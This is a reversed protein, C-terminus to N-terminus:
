QYKTCKWQINKQFDNYNQKDDNNRATNYVKEIIDKKQKKQDDTGKCPNVDDVDPESQGHPDWIKAFPNRQTGIQELIDKKFSSWIHQDSTGSSSSSPISLNLNTDYIMTMKQMGQQTGQPTGQQMGQQTGQPTGQQTGEYNTKSSLLERLYTPTDNIKLDNEVSTADTKNSASSYIRYYIMLSSLPTDSNARLHKLLIHVNKAECANDYLKQMDEYDSGLIREIEAKEKDKTFLSYEIFDHYKDFLHWVSLVQDITYNYEGTGGKLKRKKRKKHVKLKGGLSMSDEDKKQIDDM